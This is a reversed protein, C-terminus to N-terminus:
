GMRKKFDEYTFTRLVKSKGNKWLVISPHQVGNFMTTKVLTYQIADEFVIKDGIKLPKKFTYISNIKDGALCTGGGFAYAHQYEGAKGAGRITLELDPSLIFDTLHA